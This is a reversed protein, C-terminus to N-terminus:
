RDRSLRASRPFLEFSSAVSFAAYFHWSGDSGEFEVARPADGSKRHHTVLRVPVRWVQATSGNPYGLSLARIEKLGWTNSTGCSKATSGPDAIRFALPRQRNLASRRAADTACCEIPPGFAYLPSGSDFYAQVMDIVLLASRACIPSRAAWSKLRFGRLLPARLGRASRATRARTEEIKGDLVGVDDGLVFYEREYLATGYPGRVVFGGFM